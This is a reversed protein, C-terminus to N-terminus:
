NKHDKIRSKFLSVDIEKGGLLKEPSYFTILMKFYINFQWEHEFQTLAQILMGKACELVENDSYLEDNIETERMLKRFYEIWDKRNNM